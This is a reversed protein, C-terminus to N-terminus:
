VHKLPESMYKEKAHASRWLIIILFVLIAFLLWQVLGSPLFSDSCGFLANAALNSYTGNTSTNKAVTNTKNTKTLTTTTTKTTNTNTVTNTNGGVNNYVTFLAANSTGGGPGPNYVTIYYGGTGTVDNNGLVMSLHTSDVYFTTMYESGNKRIISSPIFNYGNVTVTTTRGVNTYNPSLSTIVPAPNTQYNAYNYYNYNYYPTYNGNTSPNGTFDVGSGVTAMYAVNSTYALVPSVSILGFLGFIFVLVSIYISKKVMNKM